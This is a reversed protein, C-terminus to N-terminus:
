GFGNFVVRISKGPSEALIALLKNRAEDTVIM